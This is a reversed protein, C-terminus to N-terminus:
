AAKERWQFCVEIRTNADSRGGLIGQGPPLRIPPSFEIVGNNQVPVDILHVISGNLGAPAARSITCKPAAGGVNKNISNNDLTALQANHSRVHVAGTVTADTGLIIKDLYSFVGSAAPNFLEIESFTAAGGAPQSAAGAFANGATAIADSFQIVRLAGVGAGEDDSRIRDWTAGNFGKLRSAAAILGNAGLVAAGDANDADLPGGVTAIGLLRGARDSVDASQSDRFIEGDTVVIKVLEAAGTTIRLATFPHDGEKVRGADGAVANELKAKFQGNFGVELTIPNVTSLVRFYRGGIPVTVTGNITQTIYRVEM